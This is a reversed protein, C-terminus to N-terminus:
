EDVWDGSRVRQVYEAVWFPKPTPPLPEPTASAADGGSESENGRRRNEEREANERERQLARAERTRAEERVRGERARLATRRRDWIAPHLTLLCLMCFAKVKHALKPPPANPSPTSDPEVFRAERSINLQALHNLIAEQSTPVGPQSSNDNTGARAQAAAGEGGGGGGAAAAANANGANGANQPIARAVEWVVWILVMLGFLPKRAPQFFYLLLTTRITLFILPLILPRIPLQFAGRIHLGLPALPGPPIANVQLLNRHHMQSPAYVCLLPFTYSLVRIAQMQIPTPTADPTALSLYPLTDIYTSVYKVGEAGQEPVNIPFDQNLASPWGRGSAEIGRKAFARAGEMDGLQELWSLRPQRSLIRLANTHLYQIYLFTAHPQVAPPLVTGPPPVNVTAARVQPPPGPM